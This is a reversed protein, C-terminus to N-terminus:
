KNGFKAKVRLLIDNPTLLVVFSTIATVFGHVPSLKFINVLSRFVEASKGQIAANIARSKEIKYPFLEREKQKNQLFEELERMYEPNSLADQGYKARQEDFLKAIEAASQAKIDYQVNRTLSNVAFRYFYMPDQLNYCKYKNAMRRIWDYDEAPCGIFYENYGGIDEIVSKRVMVSSGCFCVEVNQKLHEQIQENSEPLIVNQYIKGQSDTRSFGTGCFGYDPNAILFEIQKEVKNSKIWDDSDVFTIFEGSALTLLRNFTKLYGLNQENAYVLVNDHRKELEALKNATKDTSSDNVIVIEINHYSQKLLSDVAQEITDACNYAPILISVKPFIKNSM